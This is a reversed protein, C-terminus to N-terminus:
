LGIPKVSWKIFRVQVGELAKTILVNEIEAGITDNEYIYYELHIHHKAARLAALVEPFKGEGNVLIKL